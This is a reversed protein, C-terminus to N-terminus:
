GHISCHFINSYRRKFVQLNTIHYLIYIASM